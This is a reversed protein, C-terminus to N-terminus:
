DNQPGYAARLKRYTESTQYQVCRELLNSEWEENETPGHGMSIMDIDINDKIYYICSWLWEHPANKPVYEISESTFILEGNQLVLADRYEHGNTDNYVVKYRDPDTTAPVTVIIIELNPKELFCYHWDETPHTMKPTSELCTSVKNGVLSDIEKVYSEKDFASNEKETKQESVIKLQDGNLEFVITVKYDQFFEERVNVYSYSYNIKIQQETKELEIEEFGTQITATYPTTGCNELNKLATADQSFAKKLPGLHEESCQCGLNLASLLLCELNSRDENPKDDKWWCDTGISLAIYGLAMREPETINTMFDNDIVYEATNDPGGIETWLVKTTKPTPTTNEVSDQASTNNTTSNNNDTQTCSVLSIFFILIALFKM